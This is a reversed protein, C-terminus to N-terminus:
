SYKCVNLNLGDFFSRIFKEENDTEVRTKHNCHIFFLNDLNLKNEM